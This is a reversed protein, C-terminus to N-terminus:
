SQRFARMQHQACERVQKKSWRERVRILGAFVLTVGSAEEWLHPRVPTRRRAEAFARAALPSTRVSPRHPGPGKLPNV